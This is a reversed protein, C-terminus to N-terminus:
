SELAKIRLFKAKILEVFEEDVFWCELSNTVSFWNGADFREPGGVQIVETGAAFLKKKVMSETPQVLVLGM